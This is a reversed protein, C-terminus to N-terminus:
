TIANPTPPDDEYFMRPLGTFFYVQFDEGTAVWADFATDFQGEVQIRYDWSPTWISQETYNSVKGPTFRFPSYYPVEFEVTPNINGNRYVVGRPGSLPKIQARVENTTFVASEAAQSQSDYGVNPSPDSYRQFESGGVVGRQIWYVPKCSVDFTGRPAVKWRIAGRWGSFALTVWHLLVTNCYNYPTSTSTLDVAGAVNGRLYPFMSRRGGLMVESNSNTFALNSHLNYRKLMTRFSTITEGCYVKALLDHNTSTPGLTETNEQQPASPEETNQAETVLTEKGSQPRFTYKQFNDDPVFVEFDEGASVFVNIEISNDVDSNPTTLENVVYVGLVGNGEEKSAYATTSYLQTVSDVGPTHHSLLSVEQGNGIEISFDTQDAIDIVQLYNTNYENSALFNPDYVIKLRGKHFASCVIQFRYKMSGTWYRFPLAAMTCAPFHLATNGSEAWTVPSIRTNWLLTEPATGITWNFSTLYSERKAISKIDLPDSSGLGAIRPDISLEQKDDVSMKLAGDPVTTPAMQSVGMPKYPTADKTVPPRCYGLTKAMGAVARAGIETATAFPAIQPINKLVGATKAISTAPGSIMGRTNAEDIESERGSQPILTSPEVSTLVNMSVDEAWAFVSVTVLDNAGNAHKLPNISRVTLVGLDNWDTDEIHLYNKHYFFPLKMEGGSSTTPDLYVHPQQSAQVIDQRILASNTSLSDFNSFPRYSAIARGFQFGNGNIIIKVHLSARLLNYNVLRNIVRKNRFYEQWPNVSFYMDANVAWEEEFIKIPRSFFHELSADETDMTKRTPDIMSDVDYLYPDHQDSFKVNEYEMRGGTKMIMNDSTTRDEKGSQPQLRDESVVIRYVVIGDDGLKAYDDLIAESVVTSVHSLFDENTTDEPYTHHYIVEAVPNVSDREASTDNRSNRGGPGINVDAEADQCLEIICKTKCNNGIM